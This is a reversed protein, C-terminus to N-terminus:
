LSPLFQMPDVPIGDQRVEFHLHSGTSLGAGQDGPHGGSFGIVDGREVYTDPKALFKSLHAYVTAVGGPHIVMIYNGYQKGTRNFAVYGGAAAHVPTGVPTPLDIGPHEFLKRFPYDPDHFKASIGQKADIPWSLLIDGRALAQDISDLKDKLRNELDAANNAEEQKQQRLEYLIRQFEAEQDQTESLLSTKAAQDLELDMQEKQLQREQDQLSARYTELDSQKALLSTKLDKVAQTANTLDTELSGLEDVRTFFDSLSKRAIFSELLGVSQADQLETVVEGLAAQRQALRQEEATIEVNVRQLELNALEIQNNTREVSLEKEQVRNELIALQDQLSATAANQDNIRSQYKGIISDIDKIKNEKDKVQTNLADIENKLSGTGTPSDDAHALVPTLALCIALLSSWFRKM